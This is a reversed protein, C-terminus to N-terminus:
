QTQAAVESKSVLNDGNSDLTKFARGYAGSKAITPARGLGQAANLNIFTKFEAQTLQGDGNADAAAFNAQVQSQASASAVTPSAAVSAALLTIGLLRTM